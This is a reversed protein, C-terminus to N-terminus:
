EATPADPFESQWFSEWLDNVADHDSEIHRERIIENLFAAIEEWNAPVDSGFSEATIWYEEFM